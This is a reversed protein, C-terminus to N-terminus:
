ASQVGEDYAANLEDATAVAMTAEDTTKTYEIIVLNVPLSTSSVLSSVGIATKASNLAIVCQGDPGPRVPYNSNSNRYEFQLKVPHDINLSSVNAYTAWSGHPASVSDVYMKRYVPKGDIWTGVVTEETSYIDLAPGASPMDQAQPKGNEDFGVMQGAAGKIADQKNDWETEKEKVTGVAADIEDGTYASNYEAM